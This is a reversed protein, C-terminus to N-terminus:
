ASSVAIFNRLRLNLVEHSIRHTTIVIMENLRYHGIKLHFSSYPAVSNQLILETIQAHPKEQRRM